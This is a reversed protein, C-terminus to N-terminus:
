MALMIEGFFFFFIKNLEKTSNFKSYKRIRKYAVPDEKRHSHDEFPLGKKM